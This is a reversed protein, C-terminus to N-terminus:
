NVFIKIFHRSIAHPLCSGDSTVQVPILDIGVKKFESLTETLYNTAVEDRISELYSLSVTLDCAGLTECAFHEKKARGANIVAGLEICNRCM